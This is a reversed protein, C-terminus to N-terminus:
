KSYPWMVVMVDSRMVKWFMSMQSLMWYLNMFFMSWSVWMDRAFTELNPFKGNMWCRRSCRELVQYLLAIVCLM